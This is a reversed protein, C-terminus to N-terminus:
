TSPFKKRWDAQDEPSLSQVWKEQLEDNQIFNMDKEVCLQFSWLPQGGQDRESVIHNQGPWPINLNPENYMVTLEGRIRYLGGTLYVVSSNDELAVFAHGCGAPVYVQKPEQPSLEVGFWRLFTPSKGRLDVVCDWVKGTICTVLKPYEAVHIGRLVNKNSHSWNVQQWHMHQSYDLLPSQLHPHYKDEEYLEQFFGRHDPHRDMEIVLADVIDTANFNM